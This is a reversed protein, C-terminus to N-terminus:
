VEDAFTAELHGFVFLAIVCGILTTVIAIPIATSSPEVGLASWRFGEVVGVMPNLQFLWRWKDPVVDSAYAVPTAFFWIQVLFPTIYRVDRYRVNVAALWVGIASATLFALLVFFPLLLLKWGTWIQFYALMGGLVVLTIALDVLCAAIAAVPILLRPFYVRTLIREQLVLSNSAQIIATSFFTWPVLACYVFVSYPLGHSTLGAVHGFVLTFVVMAAVPQLVAWVAGLLTQKYRVRVDRWTLFYLLERRHWLDSVDPMTVRGAPRNVSVQVSTPDVGGAAPRTIVHNV